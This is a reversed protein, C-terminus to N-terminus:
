RDSTLGLAQRCDALNRRLLKWGAGQRSDIETLIRTVSRTSLGTLACIRGSYYGIESLLQVVIWRADTLEPNKKGSFVESAEVETIDAVTSLVRRFDEDSKMINEITLIEACNLINAM